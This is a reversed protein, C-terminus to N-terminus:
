EEVDLIDLIDSIDSDKEDVKIEEININKHEKSEIVEVTDFDDIFTQKEIKIYNTIGKKNKDILDIFKQDFNFVKILHKIFQEMISLEKHYETSYKDQKELLKVHKELNIYIKVLTNFINYKTSIKYDELDINKIQREIDKTAVSEKINNEKLFKRFM